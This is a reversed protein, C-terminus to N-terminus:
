LIVCASSSTSTSARERAQRRRRRPLSDDPSEYAADEALDTADLKLVLFATLEAGKGGGQAAAMDALQQGEAMQMLPRALLGSRIEPALKGESAKWWPFDEARTAGKTAPDCPFWYTMQSPPIGLRDNVEDKLSGLEISPEVEFSVEDSTLTSLTFLVMGPQADLRILQIPDDSGIGSIGALPTSSRLRRGEKLLRQRDVAAGCEKELLTKLAGVTASLAMDVYFEDDCNRGRVAIIPM